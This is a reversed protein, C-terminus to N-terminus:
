YFFIRLAIMTGSFTSYHRKADNNITGIGADIFHRVWIRDNENMQVVITQSGFDYDDGYIAALQVGNKVLEVHVVSQRESCITTSVLYLGAYPASFQGDRPEYAQGVNTIVTDFVVTQLPGLSVDHTLVANFGVVPYGQSAAPVILRPSKEQITNIRGLTESRSVKDQNVKEAAEKETTYHRTWEFTTKMQNMTREIKITKKELSGIKNQLVKNEKKLKDNELQILENKRFVEAMNKQMSRM